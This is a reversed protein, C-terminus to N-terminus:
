KYQIFDESNFYPESIYFTKSIIGHKYKKKRM